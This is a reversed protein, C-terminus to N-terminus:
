WRAVYSKPLLFRETYIECDPFLETMEGRSLLNIRDIHWRREAVSKHRYLRSFFLM